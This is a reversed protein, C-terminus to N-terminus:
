LMSGMSHALAAQSVCGGNEFRLVHLVHKRNCVCVCLENAIQSSTGLLHGKGLHLIM